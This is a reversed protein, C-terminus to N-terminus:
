RMVSADSATILVDDTIVDTNCERFTAAQDSVSSFSLHDNDVINLRDETREKKLYFMKRLKKLQKLEYFTELVVLM